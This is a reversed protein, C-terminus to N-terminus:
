ALGLERLTSRAYRIAVAIGAGFLLGEIAGFGIQAFYGFHDEGFWWGLRDINLPSGPFAAALADLSAGMLRGGFMPLLAGAIAGALATGTIGPWPHSKVLAFHTGLGVAGGLIFGELGGPLAAPARGLLITFADVGLMRAATGVVLGGLAAGIASSLITRRGVAHAAAIGLGVAFGGIIGALINVSLMVLLFSAAGVAPGLPDPSAGLGYIFGLAAGALGGGIAAALVLVMLATWNRAPM